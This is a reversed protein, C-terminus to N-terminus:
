EGAQAMLMALLAPNARFGSVTLADMIPRVRPIIGMRKALVVVALTGTVPLGFSEARARGKREDMVLTSAKVEMAMSIAEAEGPDLGLAVAPPVNVVDRVTFWPYDALTVIDDVDPAEVESAVARPIIVVGFVDRLLELRGIRHMHIIPTTDSVTIHVTPM